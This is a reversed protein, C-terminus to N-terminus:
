ALVDPITPPPSNKYLSTPIINNKRKKKLDYCLQQLYDVIKKKKKIRRNVKTFLLIIM